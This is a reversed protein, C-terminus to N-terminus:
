RSDRHGDCGFELVLPVREELEELDPLRAEVVVQLVGPDLFDGFVIDDNVRLGGVVQFFNLHPELNIM